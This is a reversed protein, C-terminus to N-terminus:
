CLKINKIYLEGNTFYALDELTYIQFKVHTYQVNPVKIYFRDNDDIIVTYKGFKINITHNKMLSGHEIKEPIFLVKKEARNYEELEKTFPLCSTGIPPKIPESLSNIFMGYELQKALQKDWDDRIRLRLADIRLFDNVCEDTHVSVQPPEAGTIKCFDKTTMAKLYFGFQKSTLLKNVKM